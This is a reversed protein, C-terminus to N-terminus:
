DVESRGPPPCISRGVMDLPGAQGDQQQACACPCPCPCPCPRRARLQVRAPGCSGCSPVLPVPPRPSAVPVPRHTPPNAPDIEGARKSARTSPADRSGPETSSSFRATGVRGPRGGSASIFITFITFLHFQHFFHFPTFPLFTFHGGPGM